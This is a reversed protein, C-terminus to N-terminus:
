LEFYALAILELVFVENAAAFELPTFSPPKM